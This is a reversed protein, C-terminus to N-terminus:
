NIISECIVQYFDFGKENPHTTTDFMLSAIFDSLTSFELKYYNEYTKEILNQVDFVISGKKEEYGRVGNHFAKSNEYNSENANITTMHPSVYIVPINNDEFFANLIDYQNRFNLVQSRDGMSNILTNEMVCIDTHVGLIDSSKTTNLENFRRGGRGM